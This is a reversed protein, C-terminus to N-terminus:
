RSQGIPRRAEADLSGTRVRRRSLLNELRERVFRRAGEIDSRQRYFRWYEEFLPAVVDVDGGGARRVAIASTAM